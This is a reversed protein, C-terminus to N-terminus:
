LLRLSCLEEPTLEFSWVIFRSTLWFKREDNLSGLWLEWVSKLSDSSVVLESEESIEKKVFLVWRVSGYVM